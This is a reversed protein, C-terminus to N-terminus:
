MVQNTTPNPVHIKHSEMYQSYYSVKMNKLPTPQNFGGLVNGMIKELFSIKWIPSERLDLDKREAELDAGSRWTQAPAPQRSSQKFKRASPFM